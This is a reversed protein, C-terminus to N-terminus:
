GSPLRTDGEAVPTSHPYTYRSNKNRSTFPERGFSPVSESQMPFTRSVSSPRRLLYLWLGVALVGGTLIVIFFVLHERRMFCKTGNGQRAVVTLVKSFWRLRTTKDTPRVM